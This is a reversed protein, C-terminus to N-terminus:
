YGRRLDHLGRGATNKCFGLITCRPPFSAFETIERVTIVVANGICDHMCRHLLEM